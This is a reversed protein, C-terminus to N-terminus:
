ARLSKRTSRAMQRQEEACQYKQDDRHISADVLRGLQRLLGNICAGLVNGQGVQVARVGVRDDSSRQLAAAEEEDAAAFHRSGQELSGQPSAPLQEGVRCRADLSVRGVRLAVPHQPPSVQLRRRLRAALNARPSRRGRGSFRLCVGRERLVPRGQAGHLVPEEPRERSAQAQLRVEQRALVPLPVVAQPEQAVRWRGPSAVTALLVAVVAGDGQQPSVARGAELDPVVGGAQPDRYWVAKSRGPNGLTVSRGQHHVSAREEAAPSAARDARCQVAHRARGRFLAGRRGLTKMICSRPM